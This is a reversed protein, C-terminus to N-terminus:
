PVAESNERLSTMKGDVSQYFTPDSPERFKIKM